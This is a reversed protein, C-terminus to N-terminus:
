SNFLFGLLRFWTAQKNALVEGTTASVSLQVPTNFEVLNLLSINREGDFYYQLEGEEGETLVVANDTALLSDILHAKTAYDWARAPLVKILRSGSPTDVSIEKKQADITIPFQTRASIDQQTIVFYDQNNRITIKEAAIKEEVEVIDESFGTVDTTVVNGEMGEVSLNVKGDKKNLYITGTSNPKFQDTLAIIELSERGPLQVTELSLVAPVISGDLKVNVFAAQAPAVLFLFCSSIALLCFIWKGIIM